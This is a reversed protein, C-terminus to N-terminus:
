DQRGPGESAETPNNLSLLRDRSNALHTEMNDAAADADGAEIAAIIAGHERCAFAPRSNDAELTRRMWIELLGRIGTLFDALVPIRAMQSVQVHFEIDSDVFATLNGSEQAHVMDDLTDRLAQLEADNRRTAARRAMTVEIELRSELLEHLDPQRVLLTWRFLQPIVAAGSNKVYTGDGPRVEILDLMEMTHLADRVSGRGIGFLEALARESPLKHGSRVEGAQVFHDILQQLVEGSATERPKLRVASVQLSMQSLEERDSASPSHRSEGHDYPKTM